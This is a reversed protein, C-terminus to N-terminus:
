MWPTEPRKEAVAMLLKGSLAALAATDKGM